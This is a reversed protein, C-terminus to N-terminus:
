KFLIKLANLYKKNGFFIFDGKCKINNLFQQVIQSYTM